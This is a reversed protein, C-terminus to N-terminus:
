LVASCLEEYEEGYIREYVPKFMELANDKDMIDTM